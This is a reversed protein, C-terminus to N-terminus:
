VTAAVTLLALLGALAITAGQFANAIRDEVRTEPQLPHLIPNTM